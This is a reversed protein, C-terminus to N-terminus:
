SDKGFDVMKIAKGYLKAESVVGFEKATPCCGCNPCVLEADECLVGREVEYERKSYCNGCEIKLRYTTM